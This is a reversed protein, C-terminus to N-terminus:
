RNKRRKLWRVVLWIVAVPILVFPSFIVVYILLDVMVQLFRVFGRLANSATVTPNWRAPEVVPRPAEKPRIRISVTALDTMRELYQARGKLSEIQGRISTLERHIALIDEAKGRNERVETMLALLETETAELNRLRAQLDVYEETVDQGGQNESDVRIAMARLEELVVDLSESPVKLTIMAHPQDDDLWRSSDAVFGEYSGVLDRIATVTADTDEVVVSMDVTRIIMRSVGEAADVAEGSFSEESEVAKEVVVTEMVRAPASEKSAMDSSRAACGSLLLSLVLLALVIRSGKRVM